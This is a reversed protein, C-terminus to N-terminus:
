EAEFIEIPKSHDFGLWRGDKLVVLNGKIRVKEYTTSISYLRNELEMPMGATYVVPYERYDEDQIYFYSGLSFEMDEGSGMSGTVEIPMIEQVAENHAPMKGPPITLIAGGKTDSPIRPLAVVIETTMNAPLKHWAPLDLNETVVLNNSKMLDVMTDVGPRDVLAWIGFKDFITWSSLKEKYWTRVKEPSDSTALRVGIVPDGTCYVASPYVAVGVKDFAAKTNAPMSDAGLVPTAFMIFIALLMAAIINTKMNDDGSLTLMSKLIILCLWTLSHKKIEYILIAAIEKPELVIRLTDLHGTCMTVQISLRM